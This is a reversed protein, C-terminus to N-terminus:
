DSTRGLLAMCGVSPDDSLPVSSGLESPEPVTCPHTPETDQDHGHRGQHDGCWGLRLGCRRTTEGVGEDGRDIRRCGDFYERAATDDHEFLVGTADTEDVRRGALQEGRRRCLEGHAASAFAPHEAEGVIRGEGGGTPDVHEVRTRRWAHGPVTDIADARERHGAVLDIHRGLLDQDVVDGGDVAIVVAAVEVDTGVPVQVDRGAIGAAVRSVARIRASRIISRLIQAQEVALDETEVAEGAGRRRAIGDATRAGDRASIASVGRVGRRCGALLQIRPPQSVWVPESEIGVAGTEEDVVDALASALLDVLADCPRVVSPVSPLALARPALIRWAGTWWGAEGIRDGVVRARDAREDGGAGEHAVACPRARESTPVHECIATAARDPQARGATRDVVARRDQGVSEAEGVHCEHGLRGAGEQVVREISGRRDALQADSARETRVLGQLQLHGLNRCHRLVRRGHHQVHGCHGRPCCSEGRHVRTAQRTRLRRIQVECCAM